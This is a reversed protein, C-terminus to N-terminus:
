NGLKLLCYFAAVSLRSVHSGGALTLVRFRLPLNANSYNIHLSQLLRL